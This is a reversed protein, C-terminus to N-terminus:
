SGLVGFVSMYNYTIHDYCPSINCDVACCFCKIGLGEKDLKTELDFCCYRFTDKQRYHAM